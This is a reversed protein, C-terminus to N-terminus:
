RWRGFLPNQLVASGQHPSFLPAHSPPTQWPATWGRGAGARPKPQPEAFSFLKSSSVNVCVTKLILLATTVLTRHDSFENIDPNQPNQFRLPPTLRITDTKLPLNLDLLVRFLRPLSIMKMNKKDDLLVDSSKTGTPRQLNGTEDGTRIEKKATKIMRSISSHLPVVVCLSTVIVM